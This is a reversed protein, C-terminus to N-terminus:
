AVKVTGGRRGASGGNQYRRTLQAARSVHSRRVDDDDGGVTVRLRVRMVTRSKPRLVRAGDIGGDTGVTDVDPDCYGGGGGCGHLRYRHRRFRVVALLGAGAAQALGDAHELLGAVRLVEHLGHQAGDLRRGRAAREHDAAVSPEVTGLGHM